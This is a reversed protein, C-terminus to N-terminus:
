LWREKKFFLLMLVCIIVMSVSVIWFGSENHLLPIVEFNMGYLGVIVNLPVAITTIIALIRMIDGLKVNVLALYADRISLVDSIQKDITKSIDITHDRIDRFYKKMSHDLTIDTTYEIKQAVLEQDKSIQRLYTLKRKIQLIYSIKFDETEEIALDELTDIAENFESLGRSFRDVLVDVLRYFLYLPPTFQSTISDQSKIQRILAELWPIQITQVSILFSKSYYLALKHTLNEEETERTIDEYKVLDEWIDLKSKLGRFIAFIYAGHDEIKPFHRPTMCDEVSLEHLKFFKAIQPLEATDEIQVNVWYYDAKMNSLSSIKNSVEFTSDQKFFFITVAM